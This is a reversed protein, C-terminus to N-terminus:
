TIGDRADQLRKFELLKDDSGLISYNLLFETSDDRKRSSLAVLKRAETLTSVQHKSQKGTSYSLLVQLM